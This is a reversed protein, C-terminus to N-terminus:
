VGDTLHSIDMQRVTVGTKLIFLERILYDEKSYNTRLSTTRSGEVFETIGNQWGHFLCNNCCSHTCYLTCDVPRIECWAIANMEAHIFWPYKEPRTSPLDSYDIDRPYGNYGTSLIRDEKTIVAGVQTQADPSRRSASIAKLMMAEDLSIRDERIEHEPYGLESIINNVKEEHEKIKRLILQHSARM